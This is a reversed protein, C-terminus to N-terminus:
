LEFPDGDTIHREAPLDKTFALLFQLYEHPDMDNLQRSRWLAENDAATVPVDVAFTDLPEVPKPSPM